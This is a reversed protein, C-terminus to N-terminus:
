STTAQIIMGWQTLIRAAGRSGLVPKLCSCDGAYTCCPILLTVANPSYARGELYLPGLVYVLHNREVISLFLRPAIQFSSCLAIQGRAHLCSIGESQPKEIEETQRGYVEVRVISEAWRRQKGKKNEGQWFRGVMNECKLGSTRVSFADVKSALRIAPGTGISRGFIIIKSPNWLLGNVAFDYAQLFFILALAIVNCFSKGNIQTHPWKWLSWERPL